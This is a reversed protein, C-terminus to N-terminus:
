IIPLYVTDIIWYGNNDKIRPYFDIHLDYKNLIKNLGELFVIDQAIESYFTEMDFKIGYKQIADNQIKLMIKNYEKFLKNDDINIKEKNVNDKRINYLGEPTIVISGCTKGDNHHEIFHLIDGMSPYEYLIGDIARGGPYPTPPHTHFIYEYDLAGDINRPLYIEEDGRDIRTTNASIVIKELSFNNFDLLGAHESYRYLNSKEDYYKKINGGGHEMLADLILLQNKTIKVYKKRNTIKIKSGIRFIKKNCEKKKPNKYFKYILDFFNLTPKINHVSIYHYYGDEWMIDKYKYYGNTIDNNCILCKKKNDYKKYKNCKIFDELEELKELFQDKGIWYKGEYPFPYSNGFIDYEKIDEKQRWYGEQKININKKNIINM